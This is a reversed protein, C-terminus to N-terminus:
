DEESIEYSCLGETVTVLRGGNHEIVKRSAINDSDCTILIEKIELDAIEELTLELIKRGYGMNRKDKRIGYGIHGGRVRLKDNLYHRMKSFGIVEDNDYLWFVTQPVMGPKLRTPDEAEILEDIYGRYEEISMGFGKNEFGNENKGIKQLMKYIKIKKKDEVTVKVLRLKSM